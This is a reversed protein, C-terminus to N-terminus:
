VRGAKYNEVDKDFQELEIRGAGTYKKWADRYNEGSKSMTGEAYNKIMQWYLNIDVPKYGPTKNPDQQKHVSGNDWDYCAPGNPSWGLVLRSIARRNDYEIKQVFLKHPYIKGNKENYYGDKLYLYIQPATYLEVGLGWTFCARKLADSAEGKVEETNSEVGVNSKTIWEGKEKDWVSVSCYMHGKIEQYSVKWNMAGFTEDLVRQDVRADKYLLFSAWVGKASKGSQAARVEIEEPQLTRFLNCM